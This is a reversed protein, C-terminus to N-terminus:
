VNLRGWKAFLHLHQEFGEFTSSEFLELLGDMTQKGIREQYEDLTPIVWDKLLGPTLLTGLNEGASYGAVVGITKSTGNKEVLQIPAGQQGLTMDATFSVTAHDGTRDVVKDIKGDMTYIYYVSKAMEQTLGSGKFYELPYGAIKVQADLIEHGYGTTPM